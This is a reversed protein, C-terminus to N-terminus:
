LRCCWLLPQQIRSGCRYFHQPWCVASCLEVNRRELSWCWKWLLEVICIRRKLELQWFWDVWFCWRQMIWINCRLQKRIILTSLIYHMYFFDAYITGSLINCNHWILWLSRVTSLIGLLPFLAVPILSTIALPFVSSMWYTAMIALVYLCRMAHSPAGDLLHSGDLTFIWGWFLPTFITVIPIWFRRFVKFFSSLM